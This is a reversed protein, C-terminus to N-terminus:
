SWCLLGVLSSHVLVINVLGKKEEEQEGGGEEVEEGGVGDM